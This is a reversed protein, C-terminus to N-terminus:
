SGTREIAPPWTDTDGPTFVLESDAWEYIHAIVAQGTRTAATEAERYDDYIATSETGDTDVLQYLRMDSM